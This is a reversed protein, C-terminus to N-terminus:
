TDESFGLGGLGDRARQRVTEAFEATMEYVACSFMFDQWVILGYEDCLDFFYDEPYIGGGWVRIMNYNAAVCDQILRETKDRNVRSLVNDEPIYNAGMSFIAAGNIVIEFSEGWEDPEQRVTITRLGIRKVQRDLLVGAKKMDIEVEYLPQKGYGNPWWIQPNNIAIQITSKKEMVSATGRVVSGSPATVVVEIDLLEGSWNDAQVAVDLIVEGDAHHQTMYVDKLYAKAYTQIYINRWIGADPIVPGWDWGFMYHAKRLHAFPMDNLNVTWLENDKNKEHIFKVPSRFLIHIDNMGRLIYPKVDFEYTRHMNDTMAILQDNVRVEALTDLGECVLLVRDQNLLVANAEFSRRYEYDHQAAEITHKENDRFFPDDLLGLNLMDAVVSGPVQGALWSNESTKKFEWQGNLSLKNM